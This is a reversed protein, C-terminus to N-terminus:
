LSILGTLALPFWDQINMPLVSASASVGISRQWRIRLISEKSFVRISPFISPLLLFLIVSSSITPHGWWSSPCSNSCAGPTPSPYPLRTHQLGHPRLSNYMVSHSFEVSKCKIHVLQKMFPFKLKSKTTNILSSDVKVYDLVASHYFSWATQVSINLIKVYM